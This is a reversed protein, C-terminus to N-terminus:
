PGRGAASYFMGTVAVVLGRRAIEQEASAMAAAADAHRVAAPGALSLTEDVIGQAM